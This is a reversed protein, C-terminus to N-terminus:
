AKLAYGMYSVSLDNGRRFALRKGLEAYSIRGLKRQWLMWAIMLPHSAPELGALDRNDLRHEKLLWVLESPTIFKEWVHVDRPMFSSWSWEQSAKISVLNSKITRNITDYFFVGGPKLVRAIEAIVQNPRAVHELADCCYVVAFCEDPIPLTEGFAPQYDIALGTQQAHRPAAEISARSPDIGSVRCGLRAFEEALYGGGCGVDLVSLGVPNLGLRELMMDRFYAFRPPNIAWRLLTIFSEQEWWTNALEDYIANDVTAM